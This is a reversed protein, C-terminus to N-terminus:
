RTRPLRRAFVQEILFAETLFIDMCNVLNETDTEENEDQLFETRTQAKCNYM